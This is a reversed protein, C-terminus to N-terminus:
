IPIGYQTLKQASCSAIMNTIMNLDAFPQLDIYLIRVLSTSTSQYRREGGLFSKVLKLVGIHWNNMWMLEVFSNQNAELGLYISLRAFNFSLVDTKM